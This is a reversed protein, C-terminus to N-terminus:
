YMAQLVTRTYTHVDTANNEALTERRRRERKVIGWRRHSAGAWLFPAVKQRDITHASAPCVAVFRAGSSPTTTKRISCCVASPPWWSDGSSRSQTACYHIARLKVHPSLAYTMLNHARKARFLSAIWFTHPLYNSFSESNLQNMIFWFYSTLQHLFFDICIYINIRIM